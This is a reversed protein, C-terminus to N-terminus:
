AFFGVSVVKLPLALILIQKDRALETYQLYTIEVHKYYHASLDKEVGLQKMKLLRKEQQVKDHYLAGKLGFM